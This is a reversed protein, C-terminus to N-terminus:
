QGGPSRARQSIFSTLFRLLSSSSLSSQTTGVRVKGKTEIMGAPSGRQRQAQPRRRCRRPADCPGTDRHTAPWTGGAGKRDQHRLITGVESPNTIVGILKM